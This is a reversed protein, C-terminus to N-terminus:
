NSLDYGDLLRRWLLMPSNGAYGSEQGDNCEIVLWRGNEAQAVDVVLFPVDVRRAAEGAISLASAQETRSLDYHEGIWYPGISACRGHWWFSRFEFARPLTFHSQEGVLRLRVFERCVVSQWRLIPDVAYTAMAEEFQAASEIISLSRQHRNTQRAGKMFFPFDFHERVEGITPCRDFWISRPTLDAILPYWGPLQTCRAYQDPAHILRIGKQQMRAYRSDYDGIAGMRSVAVIDRPPVWPHRCEFFDSFRFDYQPMGTDATVMWLTNELSFLDTQEETDM